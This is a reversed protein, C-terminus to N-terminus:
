RNGHRTPDLKADVLQCISDLTEFHEITVDEADIMIGFREQLFAVVEFIGLSDIIQEEILYTTASLEDPANGHLLEEIIYTRLVDEVESMAAPDELVQPSAM